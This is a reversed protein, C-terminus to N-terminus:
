AMLPRMTTTIQKQVIDLLEMRHDMERTAIASIFSTTSTLPGCRQRDVASIHRGSSTPVQSHLHFEHHTMMGAIFLTGSVEITDAIAEFMIIIHTSHLKKPQMDVNKLLLWFTTWRM